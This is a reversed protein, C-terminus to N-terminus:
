KEGGQQTGTQRPSSSQSEIPNGALHAVAMRVHGDAAKLAAGATAAGVGALLSVLATRTDGKAEELAQVCEEESAGTAEELISLVRGRLKANAPTVDVMLNSFTKGVKIMLATSFCNIVLKQATGAKLRTSGAIAECGTDVFVHVDAFEAIPGERRSSVLVTFARAAKSTELAGLVYPTRGSATLGIAVDGAQVDAADARGLDIDDEASEVAQHTAASSGACHAVVRSKDISFTPPLEAADLIAIRGSTGAGFYHITGGAQYREIAADVATALAPLADRVAPAVRTDEDNLLMLVELTPLNDIDVTRPNRAETISDVKVVPGPDTM